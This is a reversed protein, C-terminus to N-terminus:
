HVDIWRWDNVKIGMPYFKNVKFGLFYNPAYIIKNIKKNLWAAWWSFTSNAIILIDANLLLQFDIIEENHEYFYNDKNGFEKKAFEIDDSIFLVNYNHLNEVLSLCKKYYNTPLTLNIGGLKESGFNQYDTRRIHIAVTKKNFLASKKASFAEKYQPTIEFLKQIDQKLHIFYNESQFYGDYVINQHTSELLYAHEDITNHWIFVNKNIGWKIFWELPKKLGTPSVNITSNKFFNFAIFKFIHANNNKILSENLNFYHLSHPRFIFFPTNLKKSQAYIFAYQFMQNGLRGQALIGVM